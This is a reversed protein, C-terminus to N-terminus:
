GAPAAGPGETLLEALRSRCRAFKAAYAGHAYSADFLRDLSVPGLARLAVRLDYLADIFHVLRLAAGQDPPRPLDTLVLTGIQRLLGRYRLPHLRALTGLLTEGDARVVPEPSAAAGGDPPRRDARGDRRADPGDIRVEEFATAIGHIQRRFDEAAFRGQGQADPPTNSTTVVHTGAALVGGLFSAVILTNGPDDLEFEDICLVRTGACWALGGARGRMGVLHVLEQFTLYRKAEPGVPAAHWAAALLHTKGVGFGGDLYLGRGPRAARGWPPRWWPRRPTAGAARVFASVRELAAEQGPTRPRYSALTAAAFRPPPVWGDPVSSAPPPPALDRLDLPRPGADPRGATAGAPPTAPTRPPRPM